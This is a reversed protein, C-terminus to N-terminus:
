SPVEKGTSGLVARGVIFKDKEEGSDCGFLKAPGYVNKASFLAEIFATLRATRGASERGCKLYIWDRYTKELVAMQERDIWCIRPLIHAPTERRIVEEAFRRFDMNDFRNGFAPLIIHLRWSYPDLAAGEGSEPARCIPLFPDDNRDPRLLINEILYMGEGSYHSQLYALLEDIARHLGTESAFYEIRRAITAGSSDVINFYFRGDSTTRTQYAAPLQAAAVALRMAQRAQDRTRYNTTGSLLIKGTDRHRVRFRFEDDPTTDIEAYIDYSQESLNRRSCNRIGLLAALRKELGSVNTSNWLDEDRGLAYNCALGRDRSLTPYEALLNSKYAALAADGTHFASHMVHAFDAFSEAFRAILHDLFRNRRDLDSSQDEVVNDLLEVFAAGDAGILKQWDRFSTVAQHFYTRNRAPDISFLRGLERLQMLYDALLQDFFLLYGKLQLAQAKRAPTAGPPLGNDDLGYIAPFHNQFSSYDACNRSRGEPVAFDYNAPTETKARAAERLRALEAEVRAAAPVVPMARKHFVLRTRGDLLAKRGAAVPVLWRNAVPVPPESPDSPAPAIVLERVAAVGEIDMILAILDSLRIEERLEAAGLEADDIFGCDLLPGDFIADVSRRGGGASPLALMEDLDYNTVPPALYRDVRFLIEANVKATDADPLLDIEGCLRFPQVAVEDCAVFDECLNRNAMLRERVTRLIAPKDAPRIHDNFDLLVRYLGSIPVERIGPLRPDSHLLKAEITDAFFSLPAPRLWANKVGPLDILLKRYDLPTLARNPLIRRATFLSSTPPNPDRASEALLDAVPFSARYGLDTIAYCLLELATVGPDHVNYDTWIRRALRQVHALGLTRLGDLDLAPEEAKKRAITYHHLMTGATDAQQAKKM